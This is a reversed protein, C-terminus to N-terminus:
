GGRGRSEYHQWKFLHSVLVRSSHLLQDELRKVLQSEGGWGARVKYHRNAGTPEPLSRPVPHACLSWTTQEPRLSPKRKRRPEVSADPSSVSPSTAVHRFSYPPLSLTRLRRALSPVSSDAFGKHREQTLVCCFPVSPWASHWVHQWICWINKVIFECGGGGGERWGYNKKTHSGAQWM